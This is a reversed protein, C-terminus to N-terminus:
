ASVVWGLFQGFRGLGFRGPNRTVPLTLFSHLQLVQLQTFDDNLDSWDELLSKIVTNETSKEANEEEPVLNQEIKNSEMRIQVRQRYVSIVDLFVKM